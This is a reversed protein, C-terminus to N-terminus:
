IVSSDFSQNVSQINIPEVPSMEQETKDEIQDALLLSGALFAANIPLKIIVGLSLEASYAIINSFFAIAMSHLLSIKSDKNLFEKKCSWLCAYSIASVIITQPISLTNFVLTMPIANLLKSCLDVSKPNLYQCLRSKLEGHIKIATDAITKLPPLNIDQQNIYEQFKNYTSNLLIM